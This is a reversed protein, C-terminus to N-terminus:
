YIYDVNTTKNTFILFSESVNNQFNRLNRM